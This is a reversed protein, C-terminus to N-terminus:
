RFLSRGKTRHNFIRMFMFSAINRAKEKVQNARDGTYLEDVTSLWLQLWRGFHEQSLTNGENRDVNLHARMPNGQYNKVIFLNSEWFNTLTVFHEEWESESTLHRNFIPGLLDDERVQGYFQRILHNVDERNSIDAKSM